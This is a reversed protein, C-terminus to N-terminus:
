PKRSSRKEMSGRKSGKEKERCPANKHVLRRKKDCYIAVFTRCGGSGDVGEDKPLNAYRCNLDCFDM